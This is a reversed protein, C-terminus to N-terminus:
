RSFQKEPKCSGRYLLEKRFSSSFTCIEHFDDLQFDCKVSRCLYIEIEGDMQTLNM